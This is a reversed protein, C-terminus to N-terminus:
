RFPNQVLVRGYRQGHNLDESWCVSAALVNAATLMMGDWFSVQWQEANQIAALVDATQPAFVEWATLGLVIRGALETSLVTSGRHTLTVYLEQLVQISIAGTRSAWLHQILQRAARGKAGADGAQCGYVFVNTDCFEVSM